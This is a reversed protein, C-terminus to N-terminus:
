LSSKNTVYPIRRLFIRVHNRTFVPQRVVSPTPTPSETPDHVDSYDGFADDDDDHTTTNVGNIPHDSSPETPAQFDAWDDSAAETGEQFEFANIRVRVSRM